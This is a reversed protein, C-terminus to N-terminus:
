MKWEYRNKFYNQMKSKRTKEHMIMMDKTIFRVDCVEIHM